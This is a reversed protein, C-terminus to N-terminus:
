DPLRFNRFSSSYGAFIGAGNNINDYFDNSVNTGGGFDGPKPILNLYHQYYEKSVTRMEIQFDGRSFLDADYAYHVKFNIKTLQGNFQKDTLLFSPNNQLQRIDVTKTNTEIFLEDDTDLYQTDYQILGNAGIVTSTLEQSFLIHYYNEDEEPDAITVAVDFDITKIGVDDVTVSNAFVVTDLIVPEPISNSATVPQYGPVEVNLLYIKEIQPQFGETQYFSQGNERVLILGSLFENADGSYLTVAANEVYVQSSGSTRNSSEMVYVILDKNNSFYSQVVIKSDGEIEIPVECSAYILVGVTIALMSLYNRRM